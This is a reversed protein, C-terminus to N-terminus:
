GDEGRVYAPQIDTVFEPASGSLSGDILKGYVRNTVQDIIYVQDRQTLRIGNFVWKGNPSLVQFKGRPSKLVSTGYHVGRANTNAVIYIMGDEMM